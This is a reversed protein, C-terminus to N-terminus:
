VGVADGRVHGERGIRGIDHEVLVPGVEAANRREREVRREIEEALFHSRDAPLRERSAIRRRPPGVRLEALRDRVAGAGIVAVVITFTEM